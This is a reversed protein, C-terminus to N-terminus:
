VGKPALVLGVDAIDFEDLLGEPEFQYEAVDLRVPNEYRGPWRRRRRCEQLRSLYHAVDRESRERTEEDLEFVGVDHPPKQEVAILFVSEPYRGVASLGMCAFAMKGHYGLDGALRSFTHEDVSATTKLDALLGPGVLDPRARCRIRTAPDDWRLTVECKCFRMIRRAQRGQIGKHIARAAGECAEWEDPKLDIMGPHEVQWEEHAKTGRRGDFVAYTAAFLEPELAAAHIASGLQMTPTAPKPNLLNERYALPSTRVYSLDSWSVGQMKLYKAFPVGLRLSPKM